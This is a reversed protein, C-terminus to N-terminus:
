HTSLGFVDLWDVLRADYEEVDRGGAPAKSPGQVAANQGPHFLKSLTRAGRLKRIPEQANTGAQANDEQGQPRHTIPFSNSSLTHGLESLSPRRGEETLRPLPIPARDTAHPPPAFAGTGWNNRRPESVSRPRGHSGDDVLGASTAQSAGLPSPAAIHRLRRLRISPVRQIQRGDETQLSTPRSANSPVTSLRPAFTALPPRTPPPENNLATVNTDESSPSPAEVPVPPSSPRLNPPSPLRPTHEPQEHGNQHYPEM